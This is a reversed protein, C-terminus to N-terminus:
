LFVLFHQLTYPNVELIILLFCLVSFASVPFSVDGQFPPLCSVSSLSISVTHSSFTLHTSFLTVLLTLYPGSSSPFFRIYNILFIAEAEHTQGQQWSPSLLQQSRDLLQKWCQARVTASFIFTNGVKWTEVQSHLVWCCSHSLILVMKEVMRQVTLSQSRSLSLICFSRIWSHNGVNVVM